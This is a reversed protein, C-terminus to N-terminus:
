YHYIAQKRLSSPFSHSFDQPSIVFLHSWSSRKKFHHRNYSPASKIKRSRLECNRANQLFQTIYLSIVEILRMTRDGFLLPQSINPLPSILLLSAEDRCLVDHAPIGGNLDVCGLWVCDQSIILYCSWGINIRKWEEYHVNWDCDRESRLRDWGGSSVGWM